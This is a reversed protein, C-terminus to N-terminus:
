EGDEFFSQVALMTAIRLHDLAIQRVHNNPCDQQIKESLDAAQQKLGTIETKGSPNHSVDTTSM